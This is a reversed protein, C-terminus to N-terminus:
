PVVFVAGVMGVEVHITCYFGYTGPTDLVFPKSSGTSTTPFFPSAPDLTAVGDVVVGGALPHHDFEGVFTVETGASVRLCRPAYTAKLVTGGFAISVAAEGTHDEALDPICVNVEGPVTTSTTSTTTSTSSTTHTTSTTSTTPDPLCATCDDACHTDPACGTGDCAEGGGRDITGDGCASLAAAFTANLKARADRLTGTMTGCGPEITARLRVKGPLDGCHPWVAQLVTGQRKATRKVRAPACLDPISVQTGELVVLPPTTSAAGLAPLGQAALFRGDPCPESRTGGRKAGTGVVLIAALALTRLPIRRAYPTRVAFRPISPVPVVAESTATTSM